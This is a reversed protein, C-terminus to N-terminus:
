LRAQTSACPPEERLVPEPMVAHSYV